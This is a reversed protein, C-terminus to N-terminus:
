INYMDPNGNKKPEFVRVAKRRCRQIAFYFWNVLYIVLGIEQSCPTVVIGELRTSSYKKFDYGFDKIEM